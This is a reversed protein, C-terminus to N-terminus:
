LDLFQPKDSLFDDHDISNFNKPNSAQPNPEKALLQSSSSPILGKKKIKEVLTTRNLGLLLAAQNRNWNTKELAGILLQNEFQDVLSNFDLGTESVTFQPAQITQTQHVIDAGAQAIQYKSPLDETEIVGSGKLITLREVLNELERINGPWPYHILHKLATESIGTINRKKRQNLQTVFHELLIPIDSKRDRLAPLHIPIVNLRYFLDERFKGQNSLEELDKNTAAIIRVDVLISKTAGVPEFSREQLVRLLKVQLHPALDGIEDLFITGGDALEFRGARNSIAGTFAGRVHGFLESELLESPIAGCNIAIFPENKRNSAYHLSRAILEKGTGSEGTILITSDTDAVKDILDFIQSMQASKGIMKIHKLVPKQDKM